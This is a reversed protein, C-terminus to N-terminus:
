ICFCHHSMRNLTQIKIEAWTMIECNMLELGTNPETSHWRTAQQSNERGKERGRGCQHERRREREWFLSILKFFYFYLHLTSYCYCVLAACCSALFCLLYWLYFGGWKFPCLLYPRALSRAVWDSVLDLKMVSGSTIPKFICTESLEVTAKIKFKIKQWARVLVNFGGSQQSVHPRSISLYAVM